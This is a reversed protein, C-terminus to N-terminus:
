LSRQTRSARVIVVALAIMGVVLAGFMLVKQKSQLSLAALGAMGAVVAYWFVIARQGFGMDLLRHHLHKRDGKAPSRHEVLVRRGIVWLVDLFPISVVLLATGLKSGAIVALVGLTYGVFTSGGEGLFIKAPHVNWVFFGLLAGLSIAGFLAADPQFYVATLALLTIFFVGIASISTALGDLGDLFKTTYMVLLLWVFTLSGSALSSLEIPDGFPNSLKSVGIGFLVAVLAAALPFLITVRPPLTFRDDFIGGIILILGGLLFGVFHQNDMLGFTLADSTALLSMVLLAITVFIAVGGMLPVACTHHKKLEGTPRDLINFHKAVVIMLRTLVASLVFSAIGILLM